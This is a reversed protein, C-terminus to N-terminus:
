EKMNQLAFVFDSPSQEFGLSNTTQLKIIHLYQNSWFTDDRDKGADGKPLRPTGLRGASIRAFLFFTAAFITARLNRAALFPALRASTNGSCM